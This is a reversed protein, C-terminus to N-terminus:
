KYTLEHKLYDKIKDIMLEKIRKEIDIEDSLKSPSLVTSKLFEVTKIKMTNNNIVYEYTETCGESVLEKSFTTLDFDMPM